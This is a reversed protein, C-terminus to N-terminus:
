GQMGYIGAWAAELHGRLRRKEASEPMKEVQAAVTELIQHSKQFQGNEILFARAIGLWPKDSVLSVPLAELKQFAVGVEDQHFLLFVNGAFLHEVMQIDGAALAYHLAELRRGQGNYWASARRQLEATLGPQAQELKIRLLDAFLHHYRYWNREQDLPILFLNGQELQLLIAQSAQRGTVEACLEANMQDLVATKLLFDQVEPPQKELVEEILYDAIFRQSGALSTILEQPNAQGQLSLAALQLGAIWGETRTELATVREPTLGLGMCANLFEAAEQPSFRLDAARIESMERRARLRGLPWPPDARSVLVLHLNAPQHKLLFQPIAQIAPRNILHYDDLALLFHTQIAAIEATLAELIPVPVPEFDQPNATGLTELLDAGFGPKVTQIARILYTLFRLPDNDLEDLALWAAPRGCHKIWASALTTKGFGTSASILTLKGDLGANLKQVLRPRLVLGSRPSPLQLKTPILPLSM